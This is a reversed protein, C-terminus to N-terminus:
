APSLKITMNKGQASDYFTWKLVDRSFINGYFSGKLSCSINFTNRLLNGFYYYILQVNKLPLKSGRLCCHCLGKVFNGLRIAKHAHKLGLDTM